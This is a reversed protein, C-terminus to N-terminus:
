ERPRPRSASAPAAATGGADAALGNREQFRNSELEGVRVTYTGWRRFIKPRFRDGAIRLTYVIEGNSEDIVQVVLNLM